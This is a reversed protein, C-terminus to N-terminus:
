TKAKAPRDTIEVGDLVRLIRKIGRMSWALAEKARDDGLLEPYEGYYRALGEKAVQTIETYVRDRVSDSTPM